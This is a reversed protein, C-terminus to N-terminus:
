CSSQALPKLALGFPNGELYLERIELIRDSVTQPAAVAQAQFVHALCPAHQDPQQGAAAPGGQLLITAAVATSVILTSPRMDFREILDPGIGTDTSHVPDRDRGPRTTTATERCCQSHIVPPASGPPRDTRATVITRVEPVLERPGLLLAPAGPSLLAEPVGHGTMGDRVLIV